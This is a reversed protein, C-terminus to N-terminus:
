APTGVTFRGKLTLTNTAPEDIAEPEGAWQTNPFRKRMEDLYHVKTAEFGHRALHWRTQDAFVGEHVMNVSLVGSRGNTQFTMAENSTM